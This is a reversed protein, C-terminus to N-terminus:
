DKQKSNYENVLKCILEANAINRQQKDKNPSFPIIAIGEKKCGIVIYKGGEYAYKWENDNKNQKKAM